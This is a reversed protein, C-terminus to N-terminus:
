INNKYEEILQYKTADIRKEILESIELVDVSYSIDIEDLLILCSVKNFGLRPEPFYIVTLRDDIKFKKNDKSLDDRLGKYEKIFQLIKDQINM